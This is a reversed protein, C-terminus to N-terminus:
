SPTKLAAQLIEIKYAGCFWLYRPPISIFLTRKKHKANLIMIMGQTAWCPTTESPKPLQYLVRFGESM